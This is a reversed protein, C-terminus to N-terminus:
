VDKSELIGKRGTGSNLSLLSGENEHTIRCGKDTEEKGGAAFPSNVDRGGFDSTRSGVGKTGRSRNAM